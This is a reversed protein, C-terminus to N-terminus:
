ERFTLQKGARWAVRLLDAARAKPMVNKVALLGSIVVVGHMVVNEQLMRGIWVPRCLSASRNYSASRIYLSTSSCHDPLSTGAIPSVITGAEPATM